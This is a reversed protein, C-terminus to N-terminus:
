DQSESRCVSATEGLFLPDPSITSLAEELVEACEPGVGSELLAKVTARFAARQKEEGQAVLKQFCGEKALGSKKSCQARADVVSRRNAVGFEHEAVATAKADAPSTTASKDCGALVTASLLLVLTVVYTTAVQVKRAGSPGPRRMMRAQPEANLM